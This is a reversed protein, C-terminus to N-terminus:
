PAVTGVISQAQSTEITFRRGIGNEPAAVSFCALFYDGPEPVILEFGRRVEEMEDPDDGPAQGPRPQLVTEYVPLARENFAVKRQEETIDTNEYRCSVALPVPYPQTMTVTVQIPTGAVLDGEMEMERFVETGEFEASFVIGCAPLALTM